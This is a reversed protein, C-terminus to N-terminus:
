VKKVLVVWKQNDQAPSWGDELAERYDDVNEEKVWIVKYAMKKGDIIPVDPGTNKPITKSSM